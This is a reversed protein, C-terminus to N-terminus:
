SGNGPVGGADPEFGFEAKLLSMLEFLNLVDENAWASRNETRLFLPENGSSTAVKEIRDILEKARRVVGRAREDSVEGSRLRKLLSCVFARCSAPRDEYDTCRGDSGFCRCPQTAHLEPAVGLLPLGRKSAWAIEPGRVAFKAFLTGDCCFGCLLCLDADDRGGHDM